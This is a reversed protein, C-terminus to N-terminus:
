LNIQWKTHKATIVVYYRYTKIYVSNVFGVYIDRLKVKARFESGREGAPTQGARWHSYSWSPRSCGPWPSPEWSDGSGTPHGACWRQSCVSLSTRRVCAWQEGPCWSQWPCWRLLGGRSRECWERSGGWGCCARQEKVCTVDWGERQNVLVVNHPSCVTSQGSLSQFDLCIEQESDDRKLSQSLSVHSPLPLSNM